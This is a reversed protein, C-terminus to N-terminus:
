IKTTSNTIKELRLNTKKKDPHRPSFTAFTIGFFQRFSFNTKNNRTNRNETTVGFLRYKKLVQRGSKRYIEIRTPCTCFHSNGFTRRYNCFDNKNNEVFHVLNKVCSEVKCYTNIDNLCAFSKTCLLTEELIEKKIEM